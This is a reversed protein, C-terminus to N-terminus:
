DLLVLMIAVTRALSGREARSVGEQRLITTFAHWPGSYASNAAQLRVKVTDFAYGATINASGAVCGAVYDLM